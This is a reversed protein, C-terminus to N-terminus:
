AIISKKKRFRWFDKGYNFTLEENPKIDRCAFLGIHVLSRDIMCIPKMTPADSHNAFRMENGASKADIFLYCFSFFGTPMQMCYANRQTKFREYRKVVGTYQGIFTEKAIVNQAFLGYGMEDDIWRIAVDEISGDFLARRYRAGLNRHEQGIFTNRLLWPCSKLAKELLESTEFCLNQQYHVSFIAEFEKRSYYGIESDGKKQIAILPHKKAKQDGLLEQIETPCYKNQWPKLM